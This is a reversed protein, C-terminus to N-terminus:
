FGHDIRPGHAHNGRVIAVDLNQGLLIFGHDIATHEEILARQQGFVLEMHAVRATRVGEFHRLFNAQAVVDDFRGFALEVLALYVKVAQEVSQLRLLVLQVPFGAGQLLLFRLDSLLNGLIARLSLAILLFFFIEVKLFVLPQNFLALLVVGHEFGPM